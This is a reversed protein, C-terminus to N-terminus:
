IVSCGFDVIKKDDWMRSIKQLDSRQGFMSNTNDCSFTVWNDFDLSFAERVENCVNEKEQATSWSNTNPIDLMSIAIMESDEDVHRVLFPLFKDDEDRSGHAIIKYWCSLLLEEKLDSTIQSAVPETLIHTTNTHSRQCKKVIKTDPFIVRFVKAGHGATSLPLNYEILFGSSILEVKM